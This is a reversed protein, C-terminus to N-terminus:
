SASSATSLFELLIRNFLEPQEAQPNHGCRDIIRLTSGAIAAHAARAHSVPFLGDNRGWVILTPAQIQPLRETVLVGTRLGARHRLNRLTALYARAYGGGATMQHIHSLTQEDVVERGRRRNHFRLMNLWGLHQPRLRPLAQNVRHFIWEGVGPLSLLAYPQALSPRGLGLSNVVTLTRVRAPADLALGLAIRGGLSVGVVHARAEGLRDLFQELVDVFFPLSYRRGAPKDSLGYGPLDPALVHHRRSLRSLNHRWELFGSSGLGHILLLPDGAGSELYHISLGDIEVRGETALRDPMIAM